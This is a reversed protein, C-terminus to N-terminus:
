GTLLGDRCRPDHRFCCCNWRCRHPNTTRAREEALKGWTRKATFIVKKKEAFRFSSFYKEQRRWPHARPTFHGWRSQRNVVLLGNLKVSKEKTEAGEGMKKYDLKRTRPDQERNNQMEETTWVEPGENEKQKKKVNGVRSDTTLTEPTVAPFNWQTRLAGRHNRSKKKIIRDIWSNIKICCCCSVDPFTSWGGTSQIQM